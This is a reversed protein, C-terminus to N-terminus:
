SGSRAGGSELDSRFSSQSLCSFVKLRNPSRSQRILLLLVIIRVREDIEKATMGVVQSEGSTRRNAGADQAFAFAFPQYGSAGGLSSLSMRGHTPAPLRSPGAAASPALSARPKYGRAGTNGAGGITPALGKMPQLQPMLSAFPKTATPEQTDKPLFGIMITLWDDYTRSPPIFPNTGLCFEPVHFM